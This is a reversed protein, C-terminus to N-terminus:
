FRGVSFTQVPAGSVPDISSTETTVRSPAPAFRVIVAYPDTQGSGGDVARFRAEDEASAAIPYYGQKVMCAQLRDHMRSEAQLSNAAASVIMGVVMAAPSASVVQAYLDTRAAAVASDRCVMQAALVQSRLAEEDVQQVGAPIPAGQDEAWTASTALSAAIAIAIVSRM